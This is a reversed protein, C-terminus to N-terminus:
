PQDGAVPLVARVRFGGGPMPRSDVRGGIAAAREAMGTLGHGRTRRDQEIKAGIGDDTVEVVLADGAMTVSVTATSANAHRIVNTLAEQVIRYSALEVGAPLQVGDIGRHVSVDVGADRARTALDDLQGLGPAPANASEGPGAQRLLAVAARLDQMAERSSTRAQTVAARAADRDKDFAAIAVGMQVNVAALTHAVVDHFERAIRLREEHVRQQAERERDAAARADRAAHEASLERRGRVVEGLLLAAAPWLMETVPASSRDAALWTLGGFWTVAAVGVLLSRRRSGRLAVTYLAVVSPLNLLEGRHGLLVLVMWATACFVAVPLPWRRRVLLAALSVAVLLYTLGDAARTGPQNWWADAMTPVAVVAAVAVDVPWRVRRDAIAVVGGYPASWTM